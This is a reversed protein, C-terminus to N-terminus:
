RHAICASASCARKAPAANPSAARGEGLQTGDLIGVLDIAQTGRARGRVADDLGDRRPPQDPAALGLDSSLDVLPEEVLTM